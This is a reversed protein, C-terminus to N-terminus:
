LPQQLYSYLFLYSKNFTVIKLEFDVEQEKYGEKEQQSLWLTNSAVVQFSYTWIRASYKSVIQKSLLSSETVM